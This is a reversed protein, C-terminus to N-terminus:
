ADVDCREQYGDGEARWRFTLPADRRMSGDKNCHEEAPRHLYECSLEIGSNRYQERAAAASRAAVAAFM